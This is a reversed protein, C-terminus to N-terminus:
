DVKIAFKLGKKMLAEESCDDFANGCYRLTDVTLKKIFVSHIHVNEIYLGL